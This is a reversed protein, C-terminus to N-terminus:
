IQGKALEALTKERWKVCTCAGGAILCTVHHADRLTYRTEPIRALPEACHCPVRKFVIKSDGCDECIEHIAAPEFTGNKVQEVLDKVTLRRQSDPIYGDCSPCEWGPERRQYNDFTTRVMAVGCECKM